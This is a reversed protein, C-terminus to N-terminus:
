DFYDLTKNDLIFQSVDTISTTVPMNPLSNLIIKNYRGSARPDLITFVCTDTERRIGRGIWQRLKIIMQPVIDSSLYEEFCGNQTIEYESVANPIPFPLRVVILSSLIDGPLDIGEGASDSAFLVGNKSHRFEDIINLKGKSMMFMLYPLSKNNIEHFVKDMMKYSTFLILTHGHTSKIIDTIKESIIEKYEDNDTRPFPMNKPLYILAQKEFNYPSSTHSQLIRDSHKYLGLNKEIHSFDGDVSITGSTLITPINLSWLDKDLKKELNISLFSLTIIQNEKTLWIINKNKKMVAVLNNATKDIQKKILCDTTTESSKELDKLIAKVKNNFGHTVKICTNEQKDLFNFLLRNASLLNEYKGKSCKNLKILKDVLDPIDNSKLSVSYMDKIADPLNHVEDIVIQGYEQLLSKDTEKKLLIDAIFYNHNVIQFDYNYLSIERLFRKYRCSSNFKCTKDCSSVCIKDKVYESIPLGDLEAQNTQYLINKLYTLFLPEYDQKQIGKLFANLKYECVYHNKGKRVTCRLPRAIIKNAVLIDSIQPLYENTIANQLAITPTAIVTSKKISEFLNHVVSALIYAHTKGTGVEAECLSISNNKFGDLIQLALELQQKRLVMGNQPLIEEFIKNLLVKPNEYDIVQFIQSNINKLKGEFEKMHEKQMKFNKTGLNFKELTEMNVATYIFEKGNQKELVAINEFLHVITEQNKMFGKRHLEFSVNRLNSETM